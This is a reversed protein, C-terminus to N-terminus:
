LNPIIPYWESIPKEKKYSKVDFINLKISNKIKLLHELNPGFGYDQSFDTLIIDENIRIIGGAGVLNYEEGKELPIEYKDVYKTLYKINFETLLLRLLLSHNLNKGARIYPQENIYVQIFKKFGNSGIWDLSFEKIVEPSLMEISYCNEYVALESKFEM